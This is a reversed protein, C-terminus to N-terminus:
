RYLYLTYTPINDATLLLTSHRIKVWDFLNVTYLATYTSIRDATWLLTSNKDYCLLFTAHINKLQKSIISLTSNRSYYLLIPESHLCRTRQFKYKILQKNNIVNNFKNEVCLWIPQKHLYRIYKILQSCYHQIKKRLVTLYTWQTLISIHIHYKIQQSSEERIICNYALSRESM